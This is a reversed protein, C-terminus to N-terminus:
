FHTHFPFILDRITLSVLIRKSKKLYANNDFSLDVINFFSASGSEKPEIESGSDVMIESLLLAPYPTSFLLDDSGSVTNVEIEAYFENKQIESGVALGNLIAITVAFCFNLSIKSVKRM